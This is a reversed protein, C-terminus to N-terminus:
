GGEETWMFIQEGAQRVVTKLGTTNLDGRKGGRLLPFPGVQEGLFRGACELSEESGVVNKRITAFACFMVNVRQAMNLYVPPVLCM